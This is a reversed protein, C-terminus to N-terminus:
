DTNTEPCCYACGNIEAAIHQYRRKVEAVAGYSSIFWGMGIQNGPEAGHTCGAQHVEYDGSPQQNRNLYYYNM